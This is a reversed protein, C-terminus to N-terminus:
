CGANFANVFCLFDFKDLTDDESAWIEVRVKGSIQTASVNQFLVPVEIGHRELLLETPRSLDLEANKGPLQPGGVVVREV